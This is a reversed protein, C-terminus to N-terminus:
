LTQSRAECLTVWTRHRLTTDLHKRLELLKLGHGGAEPASGERLGWWVRGWRLEMDNGPTWVASSLAARQERHPAAAVMLAARLEEARHQFFM